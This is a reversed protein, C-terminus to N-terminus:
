LCVANGLSILDTFWRGPFKAQNVELLEELPVHMARAVGAPTDGESAIFFGGTMLDSAYFYLHIDILLWDSSVFFRLCSRRAVRRTASSRHIHFEIHFEHLCQDAAPSSRYLRAAAKAHGGRWNPNADGVRVM